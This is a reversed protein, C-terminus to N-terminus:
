KQFATAQLTKLSVIILLYYFGHSSPKTNQRLSWGQRGGWEWGLKQTEKKNNEPHREMQTKNILLHLM